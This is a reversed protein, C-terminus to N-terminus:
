RTRQQEKHIKKLLSESRLDHVLVPRADSLARHTRTREVGAGAAAGLVSCTGLTQPSFLFSSIEPFLPALSVM